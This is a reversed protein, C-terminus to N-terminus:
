YPPDYYDPLCTKCRRVDSKGTQRAINMAGTFTDYPGRWRHDPGFSETVWTRGMLLSCRERHVNAYNQRDNEYVVYGHRTRFDEKIAKSHNTSMLEEGNPPKLMLDSKVKTSQADSGPRRANIRILTLSHNNPNNTGLNHAIRGMGRKALLALTLAASTVNCTRCSM